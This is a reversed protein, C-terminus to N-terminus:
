RSPVRYAEVREMLRQAEELSDVGLGYMANGPLDRRELAELFEQRTCSLAIPIDKM